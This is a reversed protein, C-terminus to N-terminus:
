NFGDIFANHVPKGPTIYHGVRVQDVALLLHVFLWMFGVVMVWILFTLATTPRRRELQDMETGRSTSSLRDSSDVGRQDIPRGADAHHREGPSNISSFDPNM